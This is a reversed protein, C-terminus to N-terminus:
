LSGPSDGPVSVDPIERHQLTRVHTPEKSRNEDLTRLLVTKTTTFLFGLNRAAEFQIFKVIELTLDLSHLDLARVFTSQAISLSSSAVRVAPKWDACVRCSDRLFLVEGSLAGARQKKKQKEKLLHM